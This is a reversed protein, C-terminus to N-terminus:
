DILSMLFSWWVIVWPYFFSNLFFSHITIAALSPLVLYKFNSKSALTEIVIRRILGILGMLGIVGSTALIFLFSNEVGAGAKNIQWDTSFFDSDRSFYRYNNFGVGFLPNKQWIVLAQQWSEIRQEISAVRELKVGEGGPRPLLLLLFLFTFLFIFFIRQKKQLFLWVAVGVLLALYSSRSYTLFFPIGIIIALLIRRWNGKIERLEWIIGLIGLALVLGLFNPDLFPGIVRFYHEDWGSALLFRTDPLFLYQTIGVLSLIISWRCFCNLIYNKNIKSHRKGLDYVVLSLSSYVIFRVLYGLGVLTEQLFYRKFNILWSFLLIIWFSFLSKTYTSTLIKKKNWWHWILWSTLIAFVLLDLLYINVENFQGFTLPLRSLQGFPFTVALGYFLAEILNM